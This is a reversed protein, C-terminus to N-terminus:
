ASRVERTPEIRNERKRKRQRAPSVSVVWMEDSRYKRVIFREEPLNEQLWRKLSDLAMRQPWKVGLTKADEPSFSVACGDGKLLAKTVQEFIPSREFANKIRKRSRTPPSEHFRM